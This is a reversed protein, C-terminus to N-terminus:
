KPKPVFTSLTIVPSMISRIGPSKSTLEILSINLQLSITDFIDAIFLDQQPHKVPSLHKHEKTEEVDDIWDITQNDTNLSLLLKDNSKNDNSM